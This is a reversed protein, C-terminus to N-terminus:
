WDPAYTTAWVLAAGGTMPGGIFYGQAYDCGNDRLFDLTWAEEVGEAVVRLGLSHGLSIISRVIVRAEESWAAEIVFSKDIKLVSFPLRALQVLSSYGRGFDDIALQFGKIRLRTLLDLSAIQDGMASTETVEFVIRKPDVVHETCLDALRDALDVNGLTLPSLNISLDLAAEPRSAALWDLAQDVIQVTLDDILDTREAVPVFRDPTILGAEPHNWRALIEFGVLARTACAIQPQFYAEIEKSKLARALDEEIVAAMAASEFRWKGTLPLVAQLLARLKAPAFPKALVGVINLGHEAAARAAADLVRVGIGSTVIVAADCRRETLRRMIKIGDPDPMVLELVIHTPDWDDLLEFFRTPETCARAEFGSREAILATTTGVTDDDDLILLRKAMM